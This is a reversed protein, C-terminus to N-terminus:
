KDRMKSRELREMAEHDDDTRKYESQQILVDNIDDIDMKVPLDDNNVKQTAREVHDTRM